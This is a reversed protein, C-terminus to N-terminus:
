ADHGGAEIVRWLLEARQWDEATDIDQARWRPIRVVTSTEAFIPTGKLWAQPLGWYFQGADHLAEPLDQSRTSAHEPFYMRVGGGPSEHLARSVPFGFTTASFVFQWAGGAMLEAGRRLDPVTVFPATAYICCVAEPALGADM